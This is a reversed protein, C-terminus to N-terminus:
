EVIKFSDGNAKMIAIQEEISSTAYIEPKDTSLWWAAKSVQVVATKAANMGSFEIDMSRSISEVMVRELIAARMEDSVWGTTAKM